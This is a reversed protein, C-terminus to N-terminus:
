SHIRIQPVLNLDIELKFLNNMCQRCWHRTHHCLYSTIWNFSLNGFKTTEYDKSQPTISNSINSASIAEPSANNEHSVWSSLLWIIRNLCVKALVFLLICSALAPGASWKNMPYCKALIILFQARSGTWNLWKHSWYQMRTLWDFIM